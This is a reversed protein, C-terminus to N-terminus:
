GDTTGTGAVVHRLCRALGIDAWRRHGYYGCGFLLILSITLLLM